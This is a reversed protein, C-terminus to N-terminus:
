ENDAINLDIDDEEDLSTRIRLPVIMETDGTDSSFYIKIKRPVTTDDSWEEIWKGHEETPDKYYYKFSIANYNELLRTQRALGMGVTNETVLLAYKNNESAVIDYTTVVYGREGGWVSYNTSFQMSNKNGKFYYKREGNDIYTLPIYSQIQSDIIHFSIRMREASEIKKDGSEISRYGLRLAGAIVLVILALMTISITLELLTFGNRSNIFINEFRNHNIRFIKSFCIM